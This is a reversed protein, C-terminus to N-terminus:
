MFYLSLFALGNLGGMMFMLNSIKKNKEHDERYHYSKDVMSQARKYAHKSQMDALFGGKAFFGILDKNLVLGLGFCILISRSLFVEANAPGLIFLAMAEIGILFLIPRISKVFNM